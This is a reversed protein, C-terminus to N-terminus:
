QKPIRSDLSASFEKVTPLSVGRKSAEFRIAREFFPFPFEPNKRLAYREVAVILKVDLKKLEVQRIIYRIYNRQEVSIARLRNTLQEDLNAIRINSSGIVRPTTIQATATSSWGLFGTIISVILPLTLRNM